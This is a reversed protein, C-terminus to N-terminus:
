VRVQGVVDVCLGGVIKMSARETWILHGQRGAGQVREAHKHSLQASDPDVLHDSMLQM